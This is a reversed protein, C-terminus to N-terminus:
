DRLYSAWGSQIPSFRGKPTLLFSRDAAIERKVGPRFGRQTIEAEIRMAKSTPPQTVYIIRVRPSAAWYVSGKASALINRYVKKTTQAPVGGSAKWAKLTARYDAAGVRPEGAYSASAFAGVFFFSVATLWARRMTVEM